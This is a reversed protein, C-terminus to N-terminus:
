RPGHDSFARRFSRADTDIDDLPLVVTHSRIVM